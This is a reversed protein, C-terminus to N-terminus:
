AVASPLGILRLWHWLSTFSLQLRLRGSRLVDTCIWVAGAVRFCLFGKRKRKGEERERVLGVVASRM